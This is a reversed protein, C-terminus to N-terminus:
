ADNGDPGPRSLRRLLPRVEEPQLNEAELDSLSIWAPGYWNDASQRQREPGGLRLPGTGVAVLFYHATRDAHQCTGLHRIIEGALGTEEHLERGAAGAPTEGDEIGGGPLVCYHRGSRRRRVVLVTDDVGLVM